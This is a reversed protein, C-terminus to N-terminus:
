CLNHLTLILKPSIKQDQSYFIEVMECLTVLLARVDRTATQYLAITLYTLTKRYDVGRMKEKSLQVARIEKLKILTDIDSIHHHLEQMVNKIQNM